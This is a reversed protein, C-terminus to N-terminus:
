RLLSFRSTISVSLSSSATQHFLWILPSLILSLRIVDFNLSDHSHCNNQYGLIIKLKEDDTAHLRTVISRYGSLIHTRLQYRYLGPWVTVLYCLDEKAVDTDWWSCSSYLAYWIWRTSSVIMYNGHHNM